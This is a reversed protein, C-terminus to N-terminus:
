LRSVTAATKNKPVFVVVVKLARFHISSTKEDGIDLRLQIQEGKVGSWFSKQGTEFSVPTRITERITHPGGHFPKGRSYTAINVWGKRKQDKGVRWLYLAAARRDKGDDKWVVRTQVCVIKYDSLMKEVGYPMPLSWGDGAYHQLTRVGRPFSSFTFTETKPYQVHVQVTAKNFTITNGTGGRDYLFWLQDQEDGSWFSADGDKPTFFATIDNYGAGNVQSRNYSAITVCGKRRNNKDVRWLYLKAQQNGWGQDKWIVQCSVRTIKFDHWLAQKGNPMILNWGPGRQKGSPFLNFTYMETFAAM